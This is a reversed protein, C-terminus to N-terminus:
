YFTPVFMALLEARSNVNFHKHIYKIYENVTNV